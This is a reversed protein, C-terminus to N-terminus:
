PGASSTKPSMRLITESRVFVEQWGVIRREYHSAHAHLFSEVAGRQIPFLTDPWTGLVIVDPPRTELENRYYAATFRRSFQPHGMGQLIAEPGYRTDVGNTGTVAYMTDRVTIPHLAIPAVIRRNTGAHAKMFHWFVGTRAFGDTTGAIQAGFGAQVCLYLIALPLTITHLVRVRDVLLSTFPIFAAALFLWPAFYQKYPFPVLALQAILFAALALEFSNPRLRRRSIAVVWCVVGAAVPASVTWQSLIQHLLGLGWGGNRGFATNYGITLSYADRPDIGTAYLVAVALAVAAAGGALMSLFAVVSERRNLALEMLGFLGALAILKPSWCLSATALFGYACYRAFPKISETRALL